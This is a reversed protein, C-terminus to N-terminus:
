LYLLLFILNWDRFKGSGRGGCDARDIGQRWNKKSDHFEGLQVLVLLFCWDANECFVFFLWKSSVLGGLIKNDHRFEFHQCQELSNNFADFCFVSM